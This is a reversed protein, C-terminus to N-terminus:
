KIVPPFFLSLCNFVEEFSFYSDLSFNTLRLKIQLMLEKSEEKSVRLDFLDLTHELFEEINISYNFGGEDIHNKLEELEKKMNIFLSKTYLSADLLNEGDNKERLAIKERTIYLISKRDLSNISIERVNTFM